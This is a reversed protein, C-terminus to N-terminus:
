AGAPILLSIISSVIFVIIAVIISGFLEFATIDTRDVLADVFEATVDEIFASRTINEPTTCRSVCVEWDENGLWLCYNNSSRVEVGIWFGFDFSLPGLNESLLTADVSYLDSPDNYYCDRGGIQVPNDQVAACIEADQYYIDPVALCYNVSIGM